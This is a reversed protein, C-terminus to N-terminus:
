HDGDLLSNLIQPILQDLHSRATHGQIKTSSQKIQNLQTETLAGEDAEYVPLHNATMDETAFTQWDSLPLGEREITVNYAAVFEAYEDALQAAKRNM